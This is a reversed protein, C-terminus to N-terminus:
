QILTEIRYFLWIVIAYRAGKGIATLMLFLGFPVRMIGAIFTLADGGIPLWALLLSWSGYRQFWAQARHLTKLKFPFWARSEFRNLYCGLWWNVAAGLTNGTTAVVWLLLANHPQALLVSLTVESYFPLLTAAGFASIFLILYSLRGDGSNEPYKIFLSPLAQKCSSQM